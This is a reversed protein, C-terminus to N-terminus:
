SCAENGVHGVMLRENALDKLPIGKALDPDPPPASVDSM